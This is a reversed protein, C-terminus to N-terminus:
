DTSQRLAMLERHATSLAKMQEYEERVTIYRSDLTHHSTPLGSPDYAAVQRGILIERIARVYAFQLEEAKDLLENVQILARDYLAQQAGYLESTSVLTRLQSLQRRQEQLRHIEPEIFRIHDHVLFALEQAFELNTRTQGTSRELRPCNVAHISYWACVYEIRDRPALTPFIVRVRHRKDSNSFIGINGLPFDPYRVEAGPVQAVLSRQMRRIKQYPYVVFYYISGVALLTLLGIM